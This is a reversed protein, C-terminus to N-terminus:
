CLVEIPNYLHYVFNWLFFLYLNLFINDVVKTYQYFPLDQQKQEQGEPEM